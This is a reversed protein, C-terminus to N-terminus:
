EKLQKVAQKAIEEIKERDEESMYQKKDEMSMSSWSEYLYVLPTAMVQFTLNRFDRKEIGSEVAINSIQKAIAWVRRYHEKAYELFGRMDPTNWNAPLGIKRKSMM